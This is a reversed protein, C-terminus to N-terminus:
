KKVSTKWLGDFIKRFNGAMHANVIHVGVLNNKEISLIAISDDIIYLAYSQVAAESPLFRHEHDKQVEYYRSKSRELPSPNVLLKTKMKKERKWRDIREHWEGTFVFEWEPRWVFEDRLLYRTTRAKANRMMSLYIRKLGEQGEFFVTHPVANDSRGFSALAQKLSTVTRMRKEAEDLDKKVHRELADPDQAIFQKVNNKYTTAVLGKSILSALSTYVTSRSRACHRAIMTANMPSRVALAAYVASENKGLGLTEIQAALDEM